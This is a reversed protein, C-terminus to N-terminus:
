TSALTWIRLGIGLGDGDSSFSSDDLDVSGYAGQVYNYSLEQAAATASFVLLVILLISRAMVNEKSQGLFSVHGRCIIAPKATKIWGPAPLECFGRYVGAV